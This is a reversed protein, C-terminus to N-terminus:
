SKETTKIKGYRELLAPFDVDRCELLSFSVTGTKKRQRQDRTQTYGVSRLTLRMRRTSHICGTVSAYPIETTQPLTGERWLGPLAEYRLVLRDTYFDVQLAVLKEEVCRFVGWCALAAVAALILRPAWPLDNLDYGVMDAWFAVPVAVVGILALVAVCGKLLLSRGPKACAVREPILETHQPLTRNNM